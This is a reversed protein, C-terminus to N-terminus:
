FYVFNLQTWAPRIPTFFAEWAPRDGVAVTAHLEWVWLGEEDYVDHPLTSALASPAVIFLLSSGEVIFAEPHGLGVCLSLYYASNLRGSKNVLIRLKALVAAQRQPVTGAATLQFLSEWIDLLQVSTDAFFEQLLSQSQVFAEDLYGGEIALDNEYEGALLGDKIPMLQKLAYYHYADNAGGTGYAGSGYYGSGYGPM